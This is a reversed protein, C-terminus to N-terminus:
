INEPNWDVHAKAMGQAWIVLKQALEEIRKCCETEFAEGEKQFCDRFAELETTDFEALDQINLIDLAYKLPIWM